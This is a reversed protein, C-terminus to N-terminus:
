EESELRHTIRTCADWVWDPMNKWFYYRLWDLVSIDGVGVCHSCTYRDAIQYDICEEFVGVGDCTPCKM